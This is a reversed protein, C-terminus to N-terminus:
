QNKKPGRRKRRKRPPHRRKAAKEAMAVDADLGDNKTECRKCHLKFRHYVIPFRLVLRQEEEWEHGYARCQAFILAQAAHPDGSAARRELERLRHDM